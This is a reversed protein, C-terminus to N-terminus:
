RGGSGVHVDALGLQAAAETHASFHATHAHPSQRRHAHVGLEAETDDLQARHRRGGRGDDRSAISTTKLALGSGAAPVTVRVLRTNTGAVNSVAFWVSGDDGVAVGPADDDYAPAVLLPKTYGVEKGRVIKADYFRAVYGNRTRGFAVVGGHIAAITTPLALPVEGAHAALLARPGAGLLAPAAPPVIAKATEIMFLSPKSPAIPAAITSASPMASPTPAGETGESGEAGVVTPRGIEFPECATLALLLSWQVGRM